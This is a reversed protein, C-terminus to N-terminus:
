LQSSQLPHIEFRYVFLVFYAVMLECGRLLNLDDYAFETISSYTVFIRCSNIMCVPRLSKEEEASTCMCGGSGRGSSCLTTLVKEITSTDYLRYV